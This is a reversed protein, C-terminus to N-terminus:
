FCRSLNGPNLRIQAGADATIAIGGAGNDTITFTFGAVFSTTGSALTALLETV